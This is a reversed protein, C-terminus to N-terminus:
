QKLFIVNVFQKNSFNDILDYKMFILIDWRYILTKEDGGSYLFNWKQKKNIM